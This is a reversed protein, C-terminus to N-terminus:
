LRVGLVFFVYVGISIHSLTVGLLNRNRTFLLGWCFAPILVALTFFLGTHLHSVSFLLTCVGIARLRRYRGTLFRELMSQLAGRVILEQVASSVAYVGALIQIKPQAFRSWVDTYQILRAGAYSPNTQILVWKVGTAMAFLVLTLALAEALSRGLHRRTVGFDELPFGSGVMFRWSVIGLLTLVPLSVYMTNRPKLGLSELGSILLMYVCLVTLVNVILEGMTSREHARTLADESGTRVKGATITALNSTLKVYVDLAVLDFEASDRPATALTQLEVFDFEWVASQEKARVTATRMGRELLAVEGVTAGRDLTHIRHRRRGLKERKLVELRGSELVFLFRPKEGEEVLTDGVSLARLVVRSALWGAELESLGQFLTAARWAGSSNSLTLSVSM